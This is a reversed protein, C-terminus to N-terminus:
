NKVSRKLFLVPQSDLPLVSIEKADYLGDWSSPVLKGDKFKFYKPGRASNHECPTQKKCISCIM